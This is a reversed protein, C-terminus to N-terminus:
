GTPHGLLGWGDARVPGRGLPADEESRKDFGTVDRPGRTSRAHRPGVGVRQAVAEGARRKVVGPGARELKM